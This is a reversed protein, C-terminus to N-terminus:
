SHPYIKSMILCAGEKKGRELASGMGRGADTDRRAKLLSFDRSWRVAPSPAAASPNEGGGASRRRESPRAWGRSRGVGREEGTGPSGGREERVPAGRRRGPDWDPQLRMGAVMEWVLVSAIEQVPVLAVEALVGCAKLIQGLLYEKAKRKEWYL